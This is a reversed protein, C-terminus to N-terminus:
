HFIRNSKDLSDLVPTVTFTFGSENISYVKYKVLPIAMVVMVFLAEM